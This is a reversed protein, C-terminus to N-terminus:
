AVAEGETRFRALEAEDAYDGARIMKLAVTRKLALHTAKYVVGMGGRGLEGLIEYGPVHVVARLDSASRPPAAPLKAPRAPHALTTSGDAAGKPDMSRPVALTAESPPAAPEARGAPLTHPRDAPTPRTM